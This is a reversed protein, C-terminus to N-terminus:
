RGSIREPLCFCVAIHSRLAILAGICPVAASMMLRAMIATSAQHVRSSTGARSDHLNV